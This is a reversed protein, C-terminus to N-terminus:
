RLIQLLRSKRGLPSKGLLQLLQRQQHLAIVAEAGLAPTVGSVPHGPKQLLQLVAIVPFIMHEVYVAKRIKGTLIHRYQLVQDPDAWQYGNGQVAVTYIGRQQGKFLRPLGGPLKDPHCLATPHFHPQFDQRVGPLGQGGHPLPQELSSDRLKRPFVQKNVGRIGGPLLNHRRGLFNVLQNAAAAPIPINRQDGGIGTGIATQDAQNELPHADGAVPCARLFNQGFADDCGHQRGQFRRNGTQLLPPHEPIQAGAHRKQCRVFTVNHFVIRIDPADAALIPEPFPGVM